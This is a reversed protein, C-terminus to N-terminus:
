RHMALLTLAEPQFPRGRAQNQRFLLVKSTQCAPLTGHKAPRRSDQIILNDVPSLAGGDFNM